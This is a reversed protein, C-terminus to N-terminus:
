KAEGRTAYGAQVISNRLLGVGEIEVECVDGPKMWLPPTRAAGVGSPTGSLIVDGPLLTMVESLLEILRAVNFIMDDTNAQQVVEGNLRTQISLGAGGKPLEDASVFCPGFGGTADFNKGMTWQHTRLQYDRLSADNFVSYGAVYDLADDYSVGSCRRGIFVALEGEYDLEQSVAPRVIPADHGVLTTTTRLFVVPYDPKEFGTESAHDIYNLGICILKGPHQSPPLLELKALPLREANCQDLRSRIHEIVGSGASLLENMDQPLAPDLAQLAIVQQGELVGLQSTNEGRFSVLKM